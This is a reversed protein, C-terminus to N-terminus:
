TNWIRPACANLGLAAKRIQKWIKIFHDRAQMGQHGLVRCVLLEGILTSSALLSSGSIVQRSLNLVEKNANSIVMVGLVTYNAMGWTAKLVESGGELLSREILLPQNERWVEFQQRCCGEIFDEQSAPRGLCLIEWAICEAKADLEIKTKTKINCGRFLITDQPLWELVAHNSVKLNQLQLARRGDSRYFKTSAPTTILAHANDNVNIDLHLEDGGVVGGPPHLVYTHCVSQEPYFPKQVVLPGKHENRSLVTRPQHGYQRQEFDLRLRAQWRRNDELSQHEGRPSIVANM